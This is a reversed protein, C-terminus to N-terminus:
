GWGETTQYTIEEDDGRDLIIYPSNEGILLDTGNPVVTLSNGSTGVNKIIYKTGDIGPPLTVTFAGGDTDCFVEHYTEDLTTNATLRNTNVIRGSETVLIGFITVSGDDDFKIGTDTWVDNVKRQLYLDGDTVKWRWNGNSDPMSDDGTIEVYGSNHVSLLWNLKKAIPAYIEYKLWKVLKSQEKEAPFDKFIPLKEISM